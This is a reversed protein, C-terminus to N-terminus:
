DIQHSLAKLTAKTYCSKILFILYALYGSSLEYHDFDSLM